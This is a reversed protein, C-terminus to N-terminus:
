LAKEGQRQGSRARLEPKGGDDGEDREADQRARAVGGGNKEQADEEGGEEAASERGEEVAHRASQCTKSRHSEEQPACLEGEDADAGDTPEEVIHRLQEDGGGDHLAAREEEVGREEADDADQGARADADERM